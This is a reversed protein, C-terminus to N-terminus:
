REATCSAVTGFFRTAASARSVRPELGKEQMIDQLWIGFEARKPKPVSEKCAITGPEFEYWPLRHSGPVYM